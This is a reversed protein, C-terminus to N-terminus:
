SNQTYYNRRISEETIKGVGLRISTLFKFLDDKMFVNQKSLQLFFLYRDSSLGALLLALKLLCRVPWLKSQFPWAPSVKLDFYLTVSSRVCSTSSLICNSLPIWFIVILLKHLFNHLNTYQPFLPSHCLLHTPSTVLSLSTRKSLFFILLM